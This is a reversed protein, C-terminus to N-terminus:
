DEATARLLKVINAGRVLVRHLSVLIREFYLQFFVSFVLFPQYKTVKGNKIPYTPIKSIYFGIPIKYHNRKGKNFKIIM